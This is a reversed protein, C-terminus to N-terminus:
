TDPETIITNILWIIETIVATKRTKEQKNNGVTKEEEKRDLNSMWIASVIHREIKSEERHGNGHYSHSEREVKKIWHNGASPKFNPPAYSLLFNKSRNRGFDPSASAGREGGYGTEGVRNFQTIFIDSVCHASYYIGM